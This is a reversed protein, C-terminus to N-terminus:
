GEYATFAQSVSMGVLSHITMHVICSTRKAEVRVMIIVMIIIIILHSHVPHHVVEGTNIGIVVLFFVTIV